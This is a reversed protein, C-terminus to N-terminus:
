NGMEKLRAQAKQHFEDDSPTISIVENFIKRAHDDNSGKEVYGQMYMDKAKAQLEHLAQAAEANNPDADHALKFNKFANGLNGASRAAIADKLYKAFARTNLKATFASRGGSLQQDIQRCKESAAADEEIHAYSAKFDAITAGLSKVKEDTQGLQAAMAIAGDLDGAKFLTIVDSSRDVAKVFTQVRPTHIINQAKDIEARVLEIDKITPDVKEVDDLIKKATEFDKGPIKSRAEQIRGPIAAKVKARFKDADDSMLSDPKVKNALEYAQALQNKGLADAADILAQQNSVEAKAREIYQQFSEDEKLVEQVSTFKELAEKWKGQGSLQKGDSFVTSANRIIEETEAMKAAAEAEVKNIGKNHQLIAFLGLILAAGVVAVGVKPSLGKKKKGGLDSPLDIEGTSEHPVKGAPERGPRSPQARPQSGTSRRPPAAANNSASPRKPAAPAGSLEVFQVETDGISFVDGDVMQHEAEVVGNVQTGNGSGQDQLVYGNGQKVLVVHKRSVSIDPIVITNDANRGISTEGPGLTFEAGQKPGKLVILKFTPGSAPARRGGTRTDFVVTANAGEGEPAPEDQLGPPAATMMTADATGALTSDGEDDPAQEPEEEPRSRRPPASQRKPPAPSM